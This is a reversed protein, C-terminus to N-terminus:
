RELEDRLGLELGEAGAQALVWGLPAAELSEDPADNEGRVNHVLVELGVPVGPPAPHEPARRGLAHGRQRRGLRVAELGHDDQLVQDLGAVHGV